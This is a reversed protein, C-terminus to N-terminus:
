FNCIDIVQTYSLNGKYGRDALESMLERPTFQKLIEKKNKSANEARVREIEAAQKKKISNEHRVQTACETCVKVRTGFRSLKFNEEPLERGCRKCIISM